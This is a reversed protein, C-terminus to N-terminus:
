PKAINWYVGAGGAANGIAALMAVRDLAEARGAPDAFDYIAHGRNQGPEMDGSHTYLAFGKYAWQKTGDRRPIVEWFGRSQAGTPARFPHWTALCGDDSCADGGLRKGRFYAVTFSDRLNRGGWYKEFASGMYLTLGHVSLADGYGPLATVTVHAPRFNESLAAVEWGVGVDRGHADGPLADGEFRYLRRGAYAWQRLGDPRVEVSFDGIDGALEPAAVPQWRRACGHESCTQDDNPTDGTSRYLTRGAFDVFVVAQASAIVRLEIGAPLTLSAAPKFRAVNWGVPPLLSGAEALSGATKLATTESLGVNTAVEGPEQEKSWTYLPDSQYAWQLLGTHRRVASWDGFPTAGPDAILPPFEVACTADCRSVGPSDRHSRLLTRGEADGLRTWLVQDSSASLERIVDVLTVGPPTTPPVLGDQGAVISPTMLAIATLALSSTMRTTFCYLRM